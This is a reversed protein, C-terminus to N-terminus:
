DAATFIAFTGDQGKLTEEAVLTTSGPLRDAFDQSFLIPKEHRSCFGEIRAAINVAQGLVTFDLRTESGINGYLVEGFHMAIGFELELPPELMQAYQLAEQAAALAKECVTQPGRGSETAFVALLGDGVFKLIEGGHAEIAGAVVEFYRNARAMAEEAPLRSNLGSWDRIDSVFIAADIKEIDGRTIQGDLVRKGTRPGLYAEAVALSISRAKFVEVIPALAAAITTVAQLDAPSFGDTRDTVLVLISFRGDSFLMPVGFYDTAGRARLEQLVSHDDETLQDLRRRFPQLTESIVTLPSGAFGARSELGHSSELHRTGTDREWLSSVAVVLPHLTRMSVRLRWIPAGAAIMRPGLEGVLKDLDPLFRGEQMLWDVISASEWTPTTDDTMASRDGHM